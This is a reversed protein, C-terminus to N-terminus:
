TQEERDELIVTPAYVIDENYVFKINLPCFSPICYGMFNGGSDWFPRPCTPCDKPTEMSPIYVTM